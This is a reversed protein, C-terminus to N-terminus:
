KFLKVLQRLPSTVRWCFSNQIATLEQKLKINEQELHQAFSFQYPSIRIKEYVEKWSEVCKERNKESVLFVTFEYSLKSPDIDFWEVCAMKILGHEALNMMLKVFLGLHLVWCHIDEYHDPILTREGWELVESFPIQSELNEKDPYLGYEAHIRPIDKDNIKNLAFDLVLHTEPCTSKKLWAALLDALRTPQRKMDFSYRGDPLVLRLQGDPKLIQRIEEIWGILDPVHEAVHSAIVYDFQGDVCEKLACEKKWIYDIEVLQRSDFNTNWAFQEKLEETSLHDAYFVNGNERCLVPDILAGIELCRAHAFRIGRNLRERRLAIFPEMFEQGSIFFSENFIIFGEKLGFKM